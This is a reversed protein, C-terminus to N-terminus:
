CEKEEKERVEKKRQNKIKKLLYTIRNMTLKKKEEENQKKNKKMKNSHFVLNTIRTINQIKKVLICFNNSEKIQIHVCNKKKKAM